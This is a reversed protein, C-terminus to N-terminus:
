IHICKQTEINCVAYEIFIHLFYVRLVSNDILDQPSDYASGNEPVVYGVIWIVRM